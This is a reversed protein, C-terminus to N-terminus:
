KEKSAKKKSSVKGGRGSISRSCTTKEVSMGWRSLHLGGRGGYWSEGRVGEKRGKRRRFRRLDFDNKELTKAKKHSVYGARFIEGPGIFRKEGRSEWVELIHTKCKVREGPRGRRAAVM